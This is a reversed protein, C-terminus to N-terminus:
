LGFTIVEWEEEKLFRVSLREIRYTLNEAWVTTRRIETLCGRTRKPIAYLVLEFRHNLVEETLACRYPSLPGVDSAEDIEFSNETRNSWQEIVLSDKLPRHGGDDNTFIVFRTRML